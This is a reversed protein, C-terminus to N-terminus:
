PMVVWSMGIVTVGERHKKGILRLAARQQRVREEVGHVRGVRGVVHVLGRGADVDPRETVHGELDTSAVHCLSLKRIRIQFFRNPRGSSDYENKSATSGASEVLSTSSVAGRTLTQDSLSTAKLTPQHWIVPFSYTTFPM